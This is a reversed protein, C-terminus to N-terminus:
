LRGADENDLEKEFDLLEAESEDGPWQGLVASLNQSGRDTSPLRLAAAAFAQRERVREPTLRVQDTLRTLADGGEEREALTLLYSAIDQGNRAANAELRQLRKPEIEITLTM